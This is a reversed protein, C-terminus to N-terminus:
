GEKKKNSIEKLEYMLRNIKDLSAQIRQIREIRDNKHKAADRSYDSLNSVPAAKIGSTDAKNLTKYKDYFGKIEKHKKFSLVKGM